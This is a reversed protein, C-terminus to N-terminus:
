YKKLQTSPIQRIETTKEVYYNTTEVLNLEGINTINVDCEGNVIVDLRPIRLAYLSRISAESNVHINRLHSAPVYVTVSHKMTRRKASGIVLTDGNKRLTIQDAHPKRGAIQAWTNENDVLMVTVSADVILTTINAPHDIVPNPQSKGSSFTFITAVLIAFSLLFAKKM